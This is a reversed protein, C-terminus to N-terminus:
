RDNLFSYDGTLLERVPRDRTRVWDVLARTEATFAARLNEDFGAVEPTVTALERLHLWQGAFNEVLAYARPDALMRRTQAALM